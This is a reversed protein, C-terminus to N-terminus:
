ETSMSHQLEICQHLSLVQLMNRVTDDECQKSCFMAPYDATKHKVEALDKHCSSNLCCKRSVHRAPSGAELSRRTLVALSGCNENTSNVLCEILAAFEKKQCASKATADM